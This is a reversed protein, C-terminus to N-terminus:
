AFLKDVRRSTWEDVLCVFKDVHRGFKKNNNGFLGCVTDVKDM